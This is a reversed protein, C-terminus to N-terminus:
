TKNNDFFISFLYIVRKLINSTVGFNLLLNIIFMYISDVAFLLISIFILYYFSSINKNIRLKFCIYIFLLSFVTNVFFIRLFSLYGCQVKIRVFLIELLALVIATALISFLIFYINGYLGSILLSVFLIIGAIVQINRGARFFGAMNILIGSPIHICECFCILSLIIAYNINFYSIDFDKSYLRVFPMICVSSVSIMVSIMYISCFEYEAFVNKTRPSQIGFESILCGLSMRPASVIANEISRILTFVVSYVAYISTITTNVFTSIAIYPASYYVLGVLKQFFIDYTGQIKTSNIDEIENKSYFRFDKHEKYFLFSIYFGSAISFVMVIARLALISFKLKIAIFLSASSILLFVINTANLIFEQQMAQFLVCYKSTYFLRFSTSIVLFLFTFFCINYPLTTKILMAFIFAGLVGVSFFILGIIEFKYKIASLIINIKYVNNLSLPQFLAVCAAISFGGEIILLVNIFQTATSNLGNVDSGYNQILEKVIFLNCLGNFFTFLLSTISNYLTYKTKSENKM